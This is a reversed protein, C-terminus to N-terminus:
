KFKIRFESLLEALERRSGVGAQELMKRTRYKATSESIFNKEGIEEYTEGRAIAALIGLDCEDAFGLMRNLREMRLLAGDGYFDVEDGSKQPLYPPEEDGIGTIKMEFTMVTSHAWEGQSIFDALRALREGAFRYDIRCVPYPREFFESINSGSCAALRKKEALEPYGTYLAVAVNDNCCIVARFEDARPIFRSMCADLDGDNKFLECGVGAENAAKRIGIYKLRDPMSDGNYGLIAVRGGGQGLLTHRTLRYAARTYDPTISSYTYPLELHRFGFVLPHLGMECLETIWEESRRMSQSLLIVPMAATPLDKASHYIAIEERHKKTAASIGELLESFRINDTYSKEVLIHIV